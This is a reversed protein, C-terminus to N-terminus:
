EALKFALSLGRANVESIPTGMQDQRVLLFVLILPLHRMLRAWTPPRSIHSRKTILPPPSCLHAVAPQTSALLILKPTAFASHLLVCLAAPFKVPRVRANGPTKGATSTSYSMSFYRRLCASKDFVDANLHVLPRKLRTRFDSGAPASPTAEKKQLPSRGRKCKSAKVKYTPPVLPNSRKTGSASLFKSQTIGKARTPAKCM